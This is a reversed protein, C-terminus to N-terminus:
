GVRLSQGGDVPLVAGTIFKAADSHLFLAAEAVDWATGMKKGLPVQANRGARIADRTNGTMAVYQEIANPTDMLGPMITNVRIGDAAHALALTQGLGNLALKSLKYATLTTIGAISALSSINVISGSGQAVLTPLVAQCSLLCGKLNVSFIRDFGEESLTSPTGDGLAIGVNNHLIDIRGWRELCAAAYARCEAAQTWDAEFAAATGGEREIMAATEAASEASRDVVLVSAGERALLLSTARGNGITEGSIQGGGVVIAARGQLKM